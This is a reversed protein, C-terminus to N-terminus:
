SNPTHDALPECSEERFMPRLRKGLSRESIPGAQLGAQSYYNSFALVRAELHFLCGSAIWAGSLHGRMGEWGRGWDPLASSCPFNRNVSMTGGAGAGKLKRRFAGMIFCRHSFCDWARDGPCPSFHSKYLSLFPWQNRLRSRVQM